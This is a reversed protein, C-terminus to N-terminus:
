YQNMIQPILDDVGIGRRAAERRLLIAIEQITYEPSELKTVREELEEVYVSMSSMGTGFEDFRQELKNLRENHSNWHDKWEPIEFDM